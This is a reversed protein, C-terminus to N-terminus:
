CEKWNKGLAIDVVLPIKLEFVNEMTEKVLPVFVNIEEDPVEFILEDHIQLVMFGSLSCEKIMKETALMASKILDAATGQLPTNVALREAFARLQANKSSIEPIARERGTITVSKQTRRTLDKCYELFAKVHSYKRFYAEIFAGADKTSIKLEQSLGFAQQGYIIGFNVAKAQYRQEKTVDELPINLIAAATACHIDQQNKFANILLPDESFHALLRLEIQSYDAALYSWNAKQPRFAERIQRGVDTRIPINQLNPDQCSLRGTATVTQNFTCHIRQTKAFVENPLCDLYTSRLKELTRYKLLADAIPHTDKLSELVDANTSYGSATKKPLVIHLKEQLIYSVQKPSNLNFEEGALSYIHQAVKQIEDQVFLSKTKLCPIDLFIGKREMGALVKLIPLELEYLLKSFSRQAIAPMLIQELRCIFDVSQCCMVGIKEVSVDQIRQTNKGKGTLDSLPALVKGCYELALADLSHHRHHSNLLYSALMTDFSINCITIDYNQLIQYDYKINHGCFDISPNEFLGKLARLVNNQELSGNFPVYLAEFPNVSFGVGVLEAKIPQLETGLVSICISKQQLLLAILENFSELDDVIRYNFSPGDRKEDDATIDKSHSVSAIELDRLLSNFNMQSYFSKLRVVDPTRLLYYEELHPISVHIDITVLSRSMLVTEASEVIAARKKEGVVQGSNELISDLSGFQKLLASATKPGIGAVGPVNDSADGTMSLLDVIQSPTVGHIKEVEAADIILNDKRTNILFIKDNVLQCLDKDSTCLYSVAGQTEAWVAVSGMTDDAEVEPINLYPIGAHSCFEQAWHIQYALDQPMEARHAKYDPYILERKKSGRPGDFVAVLHTPSFDKIIKQVSRIFGFLANTSEGKSNTM